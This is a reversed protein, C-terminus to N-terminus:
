DNISAPGFAFYKWFRQSIGFSILNILCHLGCSSRIYCNDDEAILRCCDALARRTRAKVKRSSLEIWELRNIRSSLGGNQYQYVAPGYTDIPSVLINRTDDFCPKRSCLAPGRDGVDKKTIVVGAAFQRDCKRFSDSLYRIIKRCFRTSLALALFRSYFSSEIIEPM